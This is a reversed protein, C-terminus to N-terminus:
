LDPRHQSSALSAAVRAERQFREHLDSHEELYGHLLKVAVPRQLLTHTGYYVEAMGGRGLLKEIRVKGLTKGIWVSM